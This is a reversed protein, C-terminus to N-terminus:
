SPELDNECPVTDSLDLTWLVICKVRDLYTQKPLMRTIPQLPGLVSWEWHSGDVSPPKFNLKFFCVFVLTGNREREKM